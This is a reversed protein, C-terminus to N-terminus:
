QKKTPAWAGDYNDGKGKTLNIPNTGDANISWLDRKGDPRVMEFLLHQSDPSWKPNQPKGASGAEVVCRLTDVHAADIIVGEGSVDQDLKQVVIGRLEREGESRLRWGEFAM